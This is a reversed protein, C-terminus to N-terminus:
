HKWKIKKQFFVKGQCVSRGDPLSLFLRYKAWNPHKGLHIAPVLEAGKNKTFRSQFVLTSSAISQLHSESNMFNLLDAFGSNEGTLRAFLKELLCTDEGASHTQKLTLNYATGLEGLKLTYEGDANFVPAILNLASLTKLYGLTDIILHKQEWRYLDPILNLFGSNRIVPIDFSWANHALVQNRPLSELKKFFRKIMEFENFPRESITQPSTARLIMAGPSILHQPDCNFEYVSGGTTLAIEDPTPVIKEGNARTALNSTETDIWIQQTRM